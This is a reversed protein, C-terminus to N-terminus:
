RAAESLWINSSVGRPYYKAAFAVGKKVQETWCNYSHEPHLQWLAHAVDAQSDIEKLDLQLITRIAFQCVYVKAPFTNDNHTTIRWGGDEFICGSKQLVHDKIHRQLARFYDAYEGNLDLSAQCGAFWPYVLGEVVPLIIAGQDGTMLAPIRGDAQVSGIVAAATMRAQKHAAESLEARGLVAFLHQLILLASFAKGSIYTNGSAQGLSPDLCDYTTIERGDECRSSDGRLIGRRQLPDYHDRALMSAFCGELTPLAKHAWAMDKSSEIYLGACLVWNLMEETSMYSFCGSTGALEYASCAPPAFVCCAGMDHNFALGGPHLQDSGEFRLQDVYSYREVYLDLVNRITWPHHRMEFLSHDAALDLTNIMNYEGENVVWLPKGDRVLMQTSFLYSRTAHAVTFRQVPTLASNALLQNSALSAEVAEDFEALAYKAVDEVSEFWRTYYYRTAM